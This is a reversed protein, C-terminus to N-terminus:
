SKGDVYEMLLFDEADEQFCEYVEIINKHGKLRGVKSAEDKLRGSEVPDGKKLLRKIAVDRGAKKDTARWVVGFGGSGLLDSIVYRGLLESGKRIELSV